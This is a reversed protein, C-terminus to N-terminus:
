WQRAFNGRQLYAFHDHLVGARLLVGLELVGTRKGKKHNPLFGTQFTHHNKGLHFDEAGAHPQPGPIGVFAPHDEVQSGSGAGLFSTTASTANGM